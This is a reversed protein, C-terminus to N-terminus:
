QGRDATDVGDHCADMRDTLEDSFREIFMLSRVQGVAQMFDRAQDILAECSGLAVQRAQHVQAALRELEALGRAEELSERWEMQQMLFAPPM